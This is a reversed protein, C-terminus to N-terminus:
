FLDIQYQNAVWYNHQFFDLDRRFTVDVPNGFSVTRITRRKALEAIVLRMHFKTKWMGVRLWTPHTPGINRKLLGLLFNVLRTGNGNVKMQLRKARTAFFFYFSSAVYSMTSKGNINAVFRDPNWLQLGELAVCYTAAKGCLVCLRVDPPFGAFELETITRTIPSSPFKRAFKSSASLYSIGLFHLRVANLVSNWFEEEVDLEPRQNRRRGGSKKQFRVKGGVSLRTLGTHLILPMNLPTIM